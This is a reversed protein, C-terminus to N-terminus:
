TLIQDSKQEQQDSNFHLLVAEPIPTWIGMNDTSPGLDGLPIKNHTVDTCEQFYYKSKKSGSVINFYKRQFSM